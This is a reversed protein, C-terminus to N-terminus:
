KVGELCDCWRTNSNGLKILMKRTLVQDDGPWSDKLSKEYRKNEVKDGFPNHYKRIKTM